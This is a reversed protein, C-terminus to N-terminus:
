LFSHFSLNYYGPLPSQSSSYMYTDLQTSPYNACGRLPCSQKNNFSITENPRHPMVTLSMSPTCRNIISPHMTSAPMTPETSSAKAGFTGSNSSLMGANSGTYVNTWPNPTPTMTGMTLGQATINNTTVPTPKPQAHGMEKLTICLSAAIKCGYYLAALKAKSALSMVHKMIASLTLIAGNNFDKNNQNTLYFHGAAHSKGGTESLYSADTHVRCSDHRLHPLTVQM